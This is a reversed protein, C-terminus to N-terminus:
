GTRGLQYVSQLHSTLQIRRRRAMAKNIESLATRARNTALIQMDSYDLYIKKRREKSLAQIEERQLNGALASVDRVQTHNAVVKFLAERPLLPIQAALSDFIASSKPTTIFPYYPARPAYAEILALTQETKKKRDQINTDLLVDLIEAGMALLLDTEATVRTQEARLEQVAFSVMWGTAIVGGALLAQTLRVSDEGTIKPVMQFVAYAVLGVVIGVAAVRLTVRRAPRSVIGYVVLLLVAAAIPWLQLGTWIDSVGTAIVSWDVFFLAVFVAAAVLTSLMRMFGWGGLAALLVGLIGIVLLPIFIWELIAM